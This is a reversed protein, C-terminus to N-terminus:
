HVRAMAAIRSSRICGSRHPSVTSAQRATKPRAHWTAARPHRISRAEAPHLLHKRPADDTVHLRDRGRLRKPRAAEATPTPPECRAHCRVRWPGSLSRLASRVETLRPRRECPIGTKPRTSWPLSTPTTPEGSRHLEASVRLHRRHRTRQSPDSPTSDRVHTGLGRSSLIRPVEGRHAGPTSARHKTKPRQALAMARPLEASEVETPFSSGSRPMEDPPSHVM